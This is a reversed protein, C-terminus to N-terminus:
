NQLLRQRSLLRHTFIDVKLEITWFVRVGNGELPHSNPVGQKKGKIQTSLEYYIPYIFDLFLIETICVGKIFFDGDSFTHCMEKGGDM